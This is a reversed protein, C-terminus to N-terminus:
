NIFARVKSTDSAVTNLHDFDIWCVFELLHDLIEPEKVIKVCQESLNSIGM